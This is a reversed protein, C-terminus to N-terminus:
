KEKIFKQVGQFWPAKFQIVPPHGQLDKVGSSTWLIAGDAGKEKLYSLVKYMQKKTLAQTVWAGTKPDNESVRFSNTIYPYIKLNYKKAISLSQTLNFDVSKKWASLDENDYFYFVPSIFDIKDAIIEYQKNLEIFKNKQEDTLKKGGYSNVPFLSYVGVPAKGGFAHYLDLIAILSPLVTEPKSPTGIEYDFSIPIDPHAQSDLAIKKIKNKDVYGHSLMRNHYVVDITQLGKSSLISKIKEKDTVIHNEQELKWPIFGYLTFAHSPTTILTIVSLGLGTPFRM